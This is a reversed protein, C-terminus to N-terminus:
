SRIYVVTLYIYKPPCKSDKIKTLFNCFFDYQQVNNISVLLLWIAIKSKKENEFKEVTFCWLRM